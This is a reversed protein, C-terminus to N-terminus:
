GSFGALTRQVLDGPEPYRFIYIYMQLTEPAQACAQAHAYRFRIYLQVNLQESASCPPARETYM